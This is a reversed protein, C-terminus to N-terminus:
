NCACNYENNLDIATVVKTANNCDAFIIRVTQGDDTQGELAYSPCPSDNKDSKQWNVKGTQLITEVEGKDITRCDMRCRAHNTYVLEEDTLRSHIFEESQQQMDFLGGGDTKFFYQYATVGAIVLVFLWINQNSFTNANVGM